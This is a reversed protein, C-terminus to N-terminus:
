PRPSPAYPVTAAATCLGVPLSTAILFTRGNSCVSKQRRVSRSSLSRLNKESVHTLSFTHRWLAKSRFMSIKQQGSSCLDNANEVNDLRRRQILELLDITRGLAKIPVIMGAAQGIIAVTMWSSM